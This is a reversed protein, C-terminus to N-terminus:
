PSKRSAPAFSRTDALRYDLRIRRVTGPELKERCQRPEVELGAVCCLERTVRKADNFYKLLVQLDKATTVTIRLPEFLM